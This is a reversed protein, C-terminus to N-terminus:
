PAQNGRQRLYIQLVEQLLIDEGNRGTSNRNFASIYLLLIGGGGLGMSGIVAAFFGVIAMLFGNM